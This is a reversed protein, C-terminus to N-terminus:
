EGQHELINVPIVLSVYSYQFCFFVVNVAEFFDGEKSFM